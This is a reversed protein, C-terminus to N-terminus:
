IGFLLICIVFLYWHGFNLIGFGYQIPNQLIQVFPFISLLQRQFESRGLSDIASTTKTM